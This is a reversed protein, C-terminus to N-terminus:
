TGVRDARLARDPLVRGPLLRHLVFYTVVAIVFGVEAAIDGLGPHAKVVLGQYKTQDSFLWISVVIALAMAIPGALNTYRRDELLPDISQGRRLIRDTFVVGLWPAIWYAIILLFDEYKAGADNLGTFAVILGISGFVLAVIARRAAFPLRVGMALFSMAGSYINLVNASVAGVAIALLTLDAIPTSLLGTFSATPNGADFHDAGVATVAAAGAIELIVCAGFNGVGAWVGAWRASAGPQLYRTYDSAYPNWGAAYGFSAGLAALFGGVGGGGAAAGPHAKSLVVVVAVAFVVALFPFAWREFVQVLNHGFFAVVIQVVVIIVLSVGKSLHTLTNLALAGSVSNVAFWGIGATVSMLGAPLLNGLYGFASRGIVMQPLGHRPGWSSLVAHPVAGLATGLVIALVAQWLSQGFFLVAIVGVFVTAFELNPSSWTWLLQIPRGHRDAPPIREIGGPEIATVKGAYDRFPDPVPAEAETVRAHTM